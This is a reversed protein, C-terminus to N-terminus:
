INNNIGYKLKRLVVRFIFYFINFFKNYVNTNIQNQLLSIVQRHRFPAFHEPLLEQCITENIPKPDLYSVNDINQVCCTLPVILDRPGLRRLQWLSM